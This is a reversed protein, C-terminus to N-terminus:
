QEDAKQARLLLQEVFLLDEQTTVKPNATPSEVLAVPEGLAEILQAEDTPHFAPARQYARALLERLFVQPTQARWLTSRDVTEEILMGPGARKVTDAVPEAAIAAGVKEAAAIVRLVLEPTVLPRAADHICVYEADSELADLGARVSEWRHEGGSVTRTVEYAQLLERWRDALRSEQAAPLVVVLEGVRTLERLSALSYALMPREHIPVFAKPDPLGLRRGLGAAAVVVAVDGSV